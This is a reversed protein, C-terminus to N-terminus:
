YSTSGIRIKWNTMLTNFIPISKGGSKLTQFEKILEEFHLAYDETRTKYMRELMCKSAEWLGKEGDPAITECYVGLARIFFRILERKHQAASDTSSDDEDPLKPPLFLHNIFFDLTASDITTIDM